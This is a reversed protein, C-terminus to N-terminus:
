APAIVNATTAITCSHRHVVAGGSRQEVLRRRGLTLGLRTILLRRPDPAASGKCVARGGSAVAPPTLESIIDADPLIVTNSRTPLRVVHVRRDRRPVCAQVVHPQRPAWRHARSGRHRERLVGAPEGRAVIAKADREPKDGAQKPTASSCCALRAWTWACSSRTRTRAPIRTAM